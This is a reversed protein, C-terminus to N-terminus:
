FLVSAYKHTTPLYSIAGVTTFKARLRSTDKARGRPSSVSLPSELVLPWENEFGWPVADARDHWHSHKCTSAPSFGAQNM